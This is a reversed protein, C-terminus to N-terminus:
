LSKGAKLREAIEDLKAGRVVLQHIVFLSGYNWNHDRRELVLDARKVGLQDAMSQNVARRGTLDAAMATIKNVQKQAKQQDDACVSLSFTAVLALLLFRSAFKM